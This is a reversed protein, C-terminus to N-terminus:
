NLWKPREDDDSREGGGQIVQFGHKRAPKKAARRRLLGRWPATAVFFGGAAAGVAELLPTPDRNFLSSAAPLLLLLGAAVKANPLVWAFISIPRDQAVALLMGLPAWIVPSMGVLPTAFGLFGFPLCFLAAFIVGALSILLTSKGGHQAEHQSLMLYGFALGLFRGFLDGPAEVLPYTLWRWALSVDLEYTLALLSPLSVNLVSAAIMQAVYSVVFLSLLAITAPGPRVTRVGRHAM